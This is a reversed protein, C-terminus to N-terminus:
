GAERNRRVDAVFRRLAEPNRIVHLTAHGTYKAIAETLFRVANAATGCCGSGSIPESAPDDSQEGLLDSSHSTWSFSRIRLRLGFKSLTMHDWTVM